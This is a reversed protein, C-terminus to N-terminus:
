NLKSHFKAFLKYFKKMGTFRVRNIVMRLEDWQEDSATPKGQKLALAYIPTNKNCQFNAYRSGRMRALALAAAISFSELNRVQDSSSVQILVQSSEAHDFNEVEAAIARLAHNRDFLGIVHMFHSDFRGTRVDVLAHFWHRWFPARSLGQQANRWVPALVSYNSPGLQQWHWGEPCPLDPSDTM